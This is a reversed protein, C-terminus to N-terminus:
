GMQRKGGGTECRPEQSYASSSPASRRGGVSGTRSSGSGRRPAIPKARRPPTNPPWCRSLGCSARRGEGRQGAAAPESEEPDPPPDPASRLERARGANRGQLGRGLERSHWPPNASSAGMGPPEPQPNFGGAVGHLEADDLEGSHERHFAEVAAAFEEPTFELGHKKGLEAAKAAVDEPRRAAADLELSRDSGILDLFRAVAERSM